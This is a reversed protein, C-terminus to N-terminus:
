EHKSRRIAEGLRQYVRERRAVLLVRLAAMHKEFV